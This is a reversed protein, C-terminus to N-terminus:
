TELLRAVVQQGVQGGLIRQLPRWSRPRLVSPTPATSSASPNSCRSPVARAATRPSCCLRADRVRTPPGAQPASLLCGRSSVLGPLPQHPRAPSGVPVLLDNRGSGHHGPRRCAHPEVLPPLQAPRATSLGPSSLVYRRPASPDHGGRPRSAEVPPAAGQYPRGPRALTAAPLSAPSGGARRAVPGRGLCPSTPIAVTGPRPHEVLHGPGLFTARVHPQPQPRAASPAAGSRHAQRSASASLDGDLGAPWCCRVATALGQDHGWSTSASLRPGWSAGPGSQEGGQALDDVVAARRGPRWGRGAARAKASRTRLRGVSSDPARRWLSGIQRFPVM